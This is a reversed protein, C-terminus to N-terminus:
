RALIVKQGFRQGDVELRYFYMGAMATTGKDTRRDWVRSYTGAPLDANELTRV